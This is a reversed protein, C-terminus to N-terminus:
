HVHHFLISFRSGTAKRATARKLLAFFPRLSASAASTASGHRRFFVLPTLNAKVIAKDKSAIQCVEDVLTSAWFGISIRLGRM